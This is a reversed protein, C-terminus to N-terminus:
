ESWEERGTTRRSIMLSHGISNTSITRSYLTGDNHMSASIVKPLGIVRIALLCSICSCTGSAADNTDSCLDVLEIDISYSFINCSSRAILSPQCDVLIDFSLVLFRDFSVVRANAFHFSICNSQWKEFTNLSQQVKPLLRMARCLRIPDVQTFTKDLM